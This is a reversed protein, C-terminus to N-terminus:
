ENKARNKCKKRIKQLNQFEEVYKPNNPEALYNYIIAQIDGPTYGEEALLDEVLMGHVKHYTKPEAEKNRILLNKLSM